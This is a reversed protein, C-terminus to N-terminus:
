AGPGCGESSRVQALSFVDRSAAGRWRDDPQALPLVDGPVAGGPRDGPPPGVRDLYLAVAIDVIRQLKEWCWVPPQMPSERYSAWGWYDRSRVAILVSGSCPYLSAILPHVGKPFDCKRACKGAVCGHCLRQMGPHCLRWPPPSLHRSDCYSRRVAHTALSRDAEWWLVSDVNAYFPLWAMFSGSDRVRRATLCMRWAQPRGWSKVPYTWSLINLPPTVFTFMLRLM